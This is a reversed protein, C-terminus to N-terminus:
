VLRQRDSVGSHTSHLQVIMVSISSYSFCLVDIRANAKDRTSM